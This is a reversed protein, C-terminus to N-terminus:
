THSAGAPSAPLPILLIGQAIKAVKRYSSFTGLYFTSNSFFVWMTGVRMSSLNLSHILSVCEIFLLRERDGKRLLMQTM